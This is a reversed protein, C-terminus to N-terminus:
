SKKFTLVGLFLFSIGSVISIITPLTAGASPLQSGAGGADPAQTPATNAQGGTTTSGGTANGVITYSGNTVSTLADSKSDGDVINSDITSRPTYDFTVAAAGASLGQFILTAFTGTGTFFDTTTGPTTIGSLNATGATNDISKGLYQPYISGNTIDVLKLKTPDYKIKMDSGSSRAGGTNVIVNINFNTGANYTGSSPSLSFTASAAYSNTIKLNM